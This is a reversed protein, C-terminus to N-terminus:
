NDFWFVIRYDDSKYRSGESTDIGFFYSEPYKSGYDDMNNQTQKWVKAAEKMPLWSHSHCDCGYDEILYLTTDSADPPIGLPQPGDGRVGALAAFRHYNRSRAVPSSWDYEGEKLTWKARRHGQFTDIGVWKGNHRKELVLHIDCGM